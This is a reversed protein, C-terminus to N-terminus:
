GVIVSERSLPVDIDLRASLAFVTATRNGEDKKNVDIPLLERLSNLQFTITYSSM